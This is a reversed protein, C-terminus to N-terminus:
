LLDFVLTSQIFDFANTQTRSTGNESLRLTIILKFIIKYYVVNVEDEETPM